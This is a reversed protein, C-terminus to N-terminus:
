AFAHERARSLTPREGCLVRSRQVLADRLANCLMRDRALSMPGGGNGTMPGGHRSEVVGFPSM